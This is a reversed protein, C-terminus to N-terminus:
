LGRPGAPESGGTELQAAAARGQIPNVGAREEGQGLGPEGRTKRLMVLGEARPSRLGMANPGTAERPAWLHGWEPLRCMGAENPAVGPRARVEGAQAHAGEPRDGHPVKPQQVASGGGRSAAQSGAGAEM